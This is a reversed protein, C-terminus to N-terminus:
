FCRLLFKFCKFPVMKWNQLFFFDRLFKYDKEFQSSFIISEYSIKKGKKLIDKTV